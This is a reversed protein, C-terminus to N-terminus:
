RNAPGCGTSRGCEYPFKNHELVLLRGLQGTWWEQEIQHNSPLEMASGMRVLSEYGVSLPQGNLVFEYGLRTVKEGAVLFKMRQEAKFDQAYYDNLSKEDTRNAHELAANFTPEFAIVQALRDEVEAKAKALRLRSEQQNSKTRAIMEEREVILAAATTHSGVRVSGNKLGVIEAENRLISASYDPNNGNLAEDEAAYEVLGKLGARASPLSQAHMSAIAVLSTKSAAKGKEKMEETIKVVCSYQVVDRGNDDKMSDWSVKSCNPDNDLVQGLTYGAVHSSSEKVQNIKESCGTLGVLAVITGVLFVKM